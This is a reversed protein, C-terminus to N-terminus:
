DSPDSEEDPAGAAAWALMDMLRVDSLKAADESLPRTSRALAARLDALQPRNAVLDRRVAEWYMRKTGAFESRVRKLEDAASRAEADYFNMLRSDLIPYMGPRTLHLVKSIKATSVGKPAVAAFHNWLTIAADYAGAAERPDADALEALPAVVGWPASEAREVFWVGEADSIRSNMWPRRTRRVLDATVTTRDIAALDFNLVTAGHTSLYECIAEFPNAVAHGGVTISASTFSPEPDDREESAAEVTEIGHRSLVSEQGVVVVRDFPGLRALDFEDEPRLHALLAQPEGSWKRMVTALVGVRDLEPRSVEAAVLVNFGDTELDRKLDLPHGATRGIVVPTTEDADIREVDLDDLIEQAACVFIHRDLPADDLVSAIFDEDGMLAVVGQAPLEPSRPSCVTADMGASTFADVVTQAFFSTIGYTLARQVRSTASEIEPVSTPTSDRGISDVISMVRDDPEIGAPPNPPAKIISMADATLQSRFSDLRDEYIAMALALFFRLEPGRSRWYGFGQLRQRNSVHLATWAGGPDHAVAVVRRFEWTITRTKGLFRVGQTTILLHGTDIPTPQDNTQTTVAHSARVTTRETLRYSAGVSDRVFAHKPSILDVGSFARVVQEGRNLQVAIDIDSAYPNESAAVFGAAQRVQALWANVERRYRRAAVADRLGDRAERLSDLFGM